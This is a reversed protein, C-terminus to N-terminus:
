IHATMCIHPPSTPTSPPPTSQTLLTTLHFNVKYDGRAGEFQELQERPLFRGWRSLFLALDDDLLITIHSLKEEPAPDVEGPQM